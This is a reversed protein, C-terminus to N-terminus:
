QGSLNMFPIPAAGYMNVPLKGDWREARRLDILNSNAKLAESQAKIAAAQAEGQLQIAKAESTARLLRSKADAEAQFVSADAAGQAQARAANARGEAEIKNTLATKEAQQRQYELAEVNAKQVAAQNIANRFADTYRLDTLQFDTVAIGYPAMDAELTKKIADRLEGRKEAVTQVNVSGMASKMRDLTLSWLRAEYDRNSTFIFGVKEAPIRYFVTFTVDVEQSDITYTNIWERGSLMSQIDTRYSTTSDMIPVKFHLGPGAVYQMNGWRTVVTMENQQVTFYSALVFFLAVLAGIGAFILRFPIM